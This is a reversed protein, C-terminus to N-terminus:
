IFNGNSDTRRWQAEQMCYRKIIKAPAGVAVCYDPIDKTVVSNAGIVCGRGISAGIVCVHEGLWSGDGIHMSRLQKIPQDIIAMHISEYSHLNDAIYVKDATLVQSGFTIQGTAYIHNFNGIHTGDGITLSAKEGTLSNAALWTKYGVRVRSGIFMRSTGDLQLPSRIYARNGLKGFRLKYVPFIFLYYFLRSFKSIM